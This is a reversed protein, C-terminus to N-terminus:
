NKGITFAFLTSDHHKIYYKGGFNLNWDDRMELAEFGNEELREEVSAAVHCPSVGEELMQLLMETHDFDKMEIGGEIGIVVINSEPLNM